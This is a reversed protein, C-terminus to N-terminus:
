WRPGKREPDYWVRAGLGEVLSHRLAEADGTKKRLLDGNGDIRRMRDPKTALRELYPATVARTGENAWADFHRMLHRAFSEILAGTNEFEEESLSISDPYQGPHELDPRARLLEVGFVLWDPVDTEGCGEPWALRGGGLRALDYLVTDPWSFAIEREPPCHAALADGIAAMGAFFAGRATSLEEEPELVIALSLLDDDEAYFLAGAGAECASRCAHDFVNRANDFPRAHFLPPLLLARDLVADSM